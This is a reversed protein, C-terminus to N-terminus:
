LKYINHRRKMDLIQTKTSTDSTTIPPDPSTIKM